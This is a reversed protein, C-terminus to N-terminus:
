KSKQLIIKRIYERESTKVCVLYMGSKFESIDLKIPNAADAIAIDKLLEGYYSFVSVSYIKSDGNLLVEFVGTTPNPMLEISNQEMYITPQKIRSRSNKDINLEPCQSKLSDIEEVSIKESYLKSKLDNICLWYNIVSVDKDTISFPLANMYISNSEEFRNQSSRLQAINILTNFIKASDNLTKTYELHRNLFIYHKNRLEDVDKALPEIKNCLDTICLYTLERLYIADSNLSNNYNSLQYLSELNKIQNSATADDKINNLVKKLVVNYKDAVYNDIQVIESNVSYVLPDYSQENACSGPEKCPDNLINHQSNADCHVTSSNGLVPQVIFNQVRPSSPGLNKAVYFYQQAPPNLFTKSGISTYWNNKQFNLSSPIFQLTGSVFQNQETGDIYFKNMGNTLHLMNANELCINRNNLGAHVSMENNGAYTNTSPSMNLVANNALWVNYIRSNLIQSCKLNLSAASCYVGVNYNSVSSNQINLTAGSNAIYKIAINQLALNQHQNSGSIITNQLISNSEIGDALIANKANHINLGNLEFGKGIVKIAVEANYFDTNSVLLKKGVKNYKEISNCYATIANKNNYFKCDSIHVNDQGNVIIGKGGHISVNNLYVQNAFNLYSETGLFEIKAHEIIVKDTSNELYPFGIKSGDEIQLVLDNSHQGKLNISANKALHLENTKLVLVGDGKFSFAAGEEIELTGEVIIKAQDGLLKINTNKGITLKSGKEIFLISNQHIELEANDSLYLHTRESIKLKATNSNVDGIQIKGQDKVLITLNDCYVNYGDVEFHSGSVPTAENHYGTARNANIALLGGNIINFSQVYFNKTKAGYNFIDGRSLERKNATVDTTKNGNALERKIWKASNVTIDVHNENYEPAYYASFPTLNNCMIKADSVNLKYNQHGNSAKIDLASITPIFSHLAHLMNFGENLNGNVDHTLQYPTDYRGGPSNDISSPHPSNPITSAYKISHEKIFLRNPNRASLEAVIETGNEPSAFVNANALKLSGFLISYNLTFLTGFIGQSISKESGNILSINRCKQPYTNNLLFRTRYQDAKPAVSNSLYHHILMQRAAPSKVKSLGELAPANGIKEGFFSLFYQASIPINAGQHPADFSVYLGTNHDKNEKEMQALAYKAILGGMSPGIIILKDRTRANVYEILQMLGLTNREIYDAGKPFNMIILDHGAARLYDALGVPQVNMLDYINGVKRSDSPDFGDLVLIPKQLSEDNKNECKSYYIGYEYNCGALKFEYDVFVRNTSGYHFKCPQTGASKVYILANGSITENNAFEITYNLVKSGIGNFMLEVSDGISLIRDGFDDNFNLKIYKISQKTNSYIFNEDLKFKNLGEFLQNNLVSLLSIRSQLFPSISNASNRVLLGDQVNLRGDNYANTDIYDYEFDIIGIPIAHTRIEFDIRASEFEEYEKQLKIYSANYMEVYVQKWYSYNKVISERQDNSYYQKHLKAFPFVRDYLVTTKMESRDLKEIFQDFRQVLTTDEAMLTNNVLVSMLLLLINRGVEKLRGM